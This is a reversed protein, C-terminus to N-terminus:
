SQRPPADPLPIRQCDYLLESVALVAEEPDFDLAIQTIDIDIVTTFNSITDALHLAPAAGSEHKVAPIRFGRCLEYSANALLHTPFDAPPAGISQLRERARFLGRKIVESTALSVQPM